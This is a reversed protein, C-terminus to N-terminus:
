SDASQKRLEAKEKEFPGAGPREESEYSNEPSSFGLDINGSVRNLSESASEEDTELVFSSNKLTNKPENLSYEASKENPNDVTSSGAYLVRCSGLIVITLVLPLTKKRM